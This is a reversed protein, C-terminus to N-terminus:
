SICSILAGGFQMSFSHSIRFWSWTALVSYEPLVHMVKIIINIVNQVHDSKQQEKVIEASYSTIYSLREMNICKQLTHLVPLAHSGGVKM